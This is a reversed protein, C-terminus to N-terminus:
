GDSGVFGGNTQGGLDDRQQQARCGDTQAVFQDGQDQGGCQDIQDALHDRRQQGVCQDMQDQRDKEAMQDTQAPHNCEVEIQRSFVPQWTYAIGAAALATLCTVTVDQWTVGPHSHWFSSLVRAVYTHRAERVRSRRYYYRERNSAAEKKEAEWAAARDAKQQYESARRQEEEQAFRHGFKEWFDRFDEDFPEEKRTGWRRRPGEAAEAGAGKVIDYAERRKPQSLVEYAEKVLVFQEQLEKGAQPHRQLLLNM